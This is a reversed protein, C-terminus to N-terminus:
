TQDEIEFGGGYGRMPNSYIRKLGIADAFSVFEAVQAISAYGTLAVKYPEDPANKLRIVGSIGVLGLATQLCLHELSYNLGLHIHRLDVIDSAQSITHSEFIRRAYIDVMARVTEPSTIDAYRRATEDISLSMVAEADVDTEGKLAAFLSHDMAALVRDQDTGQRGLLMCLQGLSSARWYEQPPLDGPDGENHHDIVHVPTVGAVSTEVFIAPRGSRALGMSDDTGLHDLGYANGVNVRQGNITAHARALREADLIEQIRRMEPDEAGLIFILAPDCLFIEPSSVLM